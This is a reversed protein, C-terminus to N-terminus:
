DLSRDFKYGHYHLSAYRASVGNGEVSVAEALYLIDQSLIQTSGTTYIVKCVIADPWNEVIQQAVAPLTPPTLFATFLSQTLLPMIM